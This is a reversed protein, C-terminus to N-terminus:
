ETPGSNIVEESVDNKYIKFNDKFLKALKKAQEDYAHKDTWTNRPNLVESPIGECETPYELGFIPDKAYTVNNLKGDLAAHLLARTYQISMRKGTGYAGGTWGTNVL